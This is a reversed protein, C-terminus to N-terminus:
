PTEGLDSKAPPKVAKLAIHRGTLLRTPLRDLRDFMRLAQDIMPDVGRGFWREATKALFNVPFPVHFVATAAPVQFGANQLLRIAQPVSYCRDTYFWGFARRMWHSLVHWANHKNDLTLVLTGGPKLVRALERLAPPVDDVVLHDLTSNSVIVDFSATRFPLHKITTALFSLGPFRNKARSAIESSIDLGIAKGATEALADLLADRGFAEEYSDTKLVLRGTLSPAWARILRLHVDKKHQAIRDQFRGKQVKRSYRDWYLPTPGDKREERADIPMQFQGMTESILPCCLLAATPRMRSLDPLSM